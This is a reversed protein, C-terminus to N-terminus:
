LYCYSSLHLLVVHIKVQDKARPGQGNIKTHDHRKASSIRPRNWDSTAGARNLLLSRRKQTFYVSTSTPGHDNVNINKFATMRLFLRTITGITARQEGLSEVCCSPSDPFFYWANVATTTTKEGSFSSFLWLRTLQKLSGRLNDFWVQRFSWTLKGRQNGGPLTTKFTFEM